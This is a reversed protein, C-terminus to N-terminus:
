YGKAPDYSYVSSRSDYHETTFGIMNNVIIHITGGTTFGETKPFNLVETVIGQGPFAADGHVLIGLGNTRDHVAQGPKS